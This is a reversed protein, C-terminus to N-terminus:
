QSFLLIVKPFMADIMKESVLCRQNGLTIHCEPCVEVKSHCSDCLIHGNDCRFVPTCIITELCIPCNLINKLREMAIALNDDVDLELSSPTNEIGEQEQHLM